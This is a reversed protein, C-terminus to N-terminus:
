QRHRGCRAQLRLMMFVIDHYPQALDALQMNRLFLLVRQDGDFGIRFHFNGKVFDVPDGGHLQFFVAFVQLRM